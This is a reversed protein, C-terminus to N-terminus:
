ESGFFWALAGLLFSFSGFGEESRRRGRGLRGPPSHENLFFYLNLIQRKPCRLNMLNKASFQHGRTPGRHVPLTPDNLPLSGM